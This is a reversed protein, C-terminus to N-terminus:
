LIEGDLLVNREVRMDLKVLNHGARGEEEGDEVGHTVNDIEVVDRGLGHIVQSAKGLFHEELRVLSGGDEVPEELGDGADRTDEEKGDHGDDEYKSMGGDPFFGVLEEERCMFEVNDQVYEAEDMAQSSEGARGTKPHKENTWSYDIRQVLNHGESRFIHFQVNNFRLEERRVHNFDLVISRRIELIQGPLPDAEGASGEPGMFEMGKGQRTGRM